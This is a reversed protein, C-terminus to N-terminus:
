ASQRLEDSGDDDIPNVCKSDRWALVEDEYYRIVKPAYRYCPPGKKQAEWRKMTKTTVGLLEAAETRNIVKRTM